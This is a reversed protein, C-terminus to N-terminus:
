YKWEYTNTKENTSTVIVEQASIPYYDESYQYDISSTSFPQSSGNQYEVIKTINNKSQWLISNFDSLDVSEMGTGTNLVFFSDLGFQEKLTVYYPNINRDYSYEIRGSGSDEESTTIFAISMINEGEWELDLEVKSDPSLSSSKMVVLQNPKTAEGDRYSLVTTSSGQVPPIFNEFSFEVLILRDKDDYELIWSTHDSSVKELKGSETFTYSFTQSVGNEEPILRALNSDGSGIVVNYQASWRTGDRDYFFNLTEDNYGFVQTRNASKATALVTTYEKLYNIPFETIFTQEDSETTAGKDDKAIVQWQYETDFDLPEEPEYTTTELDEAIRLNSGEKFELYVDYRIKDGDPDTAQEWIFTPTRSIDGADMEPTLLSFSGPPRNESKPDTQDILNPIQPGDAKSCATLWLLLFM